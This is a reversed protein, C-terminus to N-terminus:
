PGEEEAAADAAVVGGDPRRIAMTVELALSQGSIPEITRREPPASPHRFVIEHRGPAIPLPYGIPTVDVLEGDIYIEAWPHALVRLQAPAQAVGLAGARQTANREPLLVALALAAGLVLAAGILPLALRRPLRRAPRAPRALGEPAPMGIPEGFGAAALTQVVLLDIPVATEARLAGTLAGALAPMDPYRGSPSKSLARMVVRGLAPSLGPAEPGLPPASEHRLRPAGEVPETRVFPKPGALMRYLLAGLLFVGTREDAPEGLVQEPALDEPLALEQGAEQEPAAAPSGVSHLRVGGAPGLEVRGAGLEALVRGHRHLVAAARALEIAIAVAGHPDLRGSRGLLEELRVGGLDHLVLAPGRETPVVDLLFPLLPHDIERLLEVEREVNLAVRAPTALDDSALKILVPRGSAIQEGRRVLTHGERAVIAGLRYGGLLETAPADGM